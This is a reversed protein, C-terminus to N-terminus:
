NALTGDDDNGITGNVPEDREESEEKELSMRLDFSAVSEIVVAEYRSKCSM